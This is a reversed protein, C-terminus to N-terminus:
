RPAAPPAAEDSRPLLIRFTAGQGPRSDVGVAGRSQKVAGYVIALGLGTGQEKTTFFPEFARERVSLPMGCGSDTARLVVYPGPPVGEALAPVAELEATEIEITFTGGGPMADRANMALNLLVQEMQVPDVEVVAPEPPRLIELRVQGGLLRAIMPRLGSVLDGLDLRRPAIERKRSFAMLQSTLAAARESAQDIESLYRAVRSGPATDRQAMLASSRVIMLVNNFDHAMGGAVRGVAEMKQSQRLEAELRSREAEARRRETTDRLFLQATGDPMRKSSMEVPVAEGARRRLVREAGVAAGDAPLESALAVPAGDERVLLEDIARGRLEDLDFGTLESARRNAGIVQGQADVLVIADVALEVLSRFREESAEIDRAREVLAANASALSAEQERSRALSTKLSDALLGVGIATLVVIIAADVVTGANTLHRLPSPVFGRIEALGLLVVFLLTAAANLVYPRRDVLLASVVLTAPFIMMSIDHLGLGGFAVLSTAGGQVVALTVYVAARVRGRRSLLVAATTGLAVAVLVVGSSWNSTAVDVLLATLSGALLARTIIGITRALRPDAGAYQREQRSTPAREDSRM